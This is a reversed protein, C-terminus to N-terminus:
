PSFISFLQNSSRALPHSAAPGPGSALSGQAARPGQSAQQSASLRNKSQSTKGRQSRAEAVLKGKASRLCVQSPQPILLRKERALQFSGAGHLGTGPAQAGSISNKVRGSPAQLYDARPRTRM